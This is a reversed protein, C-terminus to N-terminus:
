GSRVSPNMVCDLDRVVFTRSAIQRVVCEGRGRSRRRRSISPTVVAGLIDAIFPFPCPVQVEVNKLHITV